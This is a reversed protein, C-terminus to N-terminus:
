TVFLVGSRRNFQDRPVLVPAYKEWLNITKKGKAQAYKYARYANSNGKEEVCFIVTDSADIMACDRM